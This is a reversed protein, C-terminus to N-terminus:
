AAPTLYGKDVARQIEKCRTRRAEWGWGSVAEGKHRAGFTDFAVADAADKEDDDRGSLFDKKFTAKVHTKVPNWPNDLKIIVAGLYTTGAGVLAAFTQTTLAPADKPPTKAVVLWFLTAGAVAAAILLLLYGAEMLRSANAPHERLLHKGLLYAAGVSIVLVAVIILPPPWGEKIYLYGLGVGGAGSVLPGLPALLRAIV